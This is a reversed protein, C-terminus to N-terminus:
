EKKEWTREMDIEIKQTLNTGDFQQVVSKTGMKQSGGAMYKVGGFIGFVLLLVMAIISLGRVWRSDWFSNGLSTKSHEIGIEVYTLYRPEDSSVTCNEHTTAAVRTRKLESKVSTIATESADNTELRINFTCPLNQFSSTIGKENLEKQSFLPEKLQNLSSVVGELLKSLSIEGKETEETANKDAM